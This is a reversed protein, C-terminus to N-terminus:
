QGQSLYFNQEVDLNLSSFKKRKRKRLGNLASHQTRRSVKQELFTILAALPNVGYPLNCNKYLVSATLETPGVQTRQKKAKATSVPKL